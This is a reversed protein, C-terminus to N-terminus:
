GPLIPSAPRKGDAEAGEVALVNTVLRTGSNRANVAALVYVGMLLAAFMGELRGPARVTLLFALLSGAVLLVLLLLSVSALERYLLYSKQADRVGSRAEHKQYIRYWLQNQEQPTQPFPGHVYGLAAMDVRGDRPGLDTFARSGPLVDRRRWYVLTEKIPTPLLNLLLLSFVGGVAAAGTRLPDLAGLLSSLTLGDPVADAGIYAVVYALVVGGVFLRLTPANQDKLSKSPESM